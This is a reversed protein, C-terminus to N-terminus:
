QNFMVKKGSKLADIIESADYKTLSRMANTSSRFPWEPLNEKNRLKSIYELQAYTMAVKDTAKHWGTEIKVTKM